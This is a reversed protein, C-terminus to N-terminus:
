CGCSCSLKESGAKEFSERGESFAFWAIGLSGAVDFWAIGFLEYLGSYILLVFSLYFCTKTIFKNIHCNRSGPTEYNATKQNFPHLKWFWRDNRIIKHFYFGFYYRQKM